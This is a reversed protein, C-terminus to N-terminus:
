DFQPYGKDVFGLVTVYALWVLALKFSLKTVTTAMVLSGRWEPKFWEIVSAFDFSLSMCIILMLSASISIIAVLNFYSLNIFIEEALKNLKKVKSVDELIDSNKVNLPEISALYVLVNFTFGILIAQASIISAYLDSTIRNFAVSCLLGILAIAIYRPTVRAKKGTRYNYFTDANLRVIGRINLM